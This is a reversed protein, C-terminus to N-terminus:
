RIVIKEPMLTLVSGEPFDLLPMWQRLASVWAPLSAIVRSELLESLRESFDKPQPYFVVEVRKDVALGAATKAAAVAANFGGLEDVLGKASAQEGTWVRGRGVDNVAEESMSRGAAVRSVFLRYIQQVAASIRQRESDSYTHMLSPIRAM